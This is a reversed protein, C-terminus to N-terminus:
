RSLFLAHFIEFIFDGDEGPGGIANPQVKGFGEDALAAMDDDGVEVQLLNLGAGVLQFFHWIGFGAGDAHSAIDCLDCLNLRQGFGCPRMKAVDIRQKVIGADATAQGGGHFGFVGIQAPHEFNIEEAIPVGAHDEGAAKAVLARRGMNAIRGRFVRDAPGGGIHSAIIGGFGGHQAVGTHQPHFQRGM